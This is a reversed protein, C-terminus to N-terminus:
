KNGRKVEGLLITTELIIKKDKRKITLHIHKKNIDLYENIVSLM